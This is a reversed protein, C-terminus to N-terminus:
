LAILKKFRDDDLLGPVNEMLVARPLIAQVFDGFTGVLDNREDKVNRSGQLTRLSSFGQCPPCGALLDLEGKRLGVTQMLHRPTLIRIDLQILRTNPHNIAYAAAALPEREVAAIVTFGARRLGLSLGGLGSFLDIATLSEKKSPEYVTEYGVMAHRRTLIQVVMIMCDAFM